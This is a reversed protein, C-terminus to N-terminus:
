KANAATSTGQASCCLKEFSSSVMSYSETITDGGGHVQEDAPGKTNCAERRVQQARRELSGKVRGGGCEWEGWGEGKRRGHM